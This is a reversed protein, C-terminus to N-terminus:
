REHRACSTTACQAFRPRGRAVASGISGDGSWSSSSVVIRSQRGPSSRPTVSFRRTRRPWQWAPRQARHEPKASPSAGVVWRQSEGSNVGSLHGPQNTGGCWALHVCVAAFGKETSTTSEATRLTRDRDVASLGANAPHPGSVSTHPRAVWDPTTVSRGPVSGAVGPPRRRQLLRAHRPRAHAASSREAVDVCEAPDRTRQRARRRVGPRHLRLASRDLVQDRDASRTAHSRTGPCSM